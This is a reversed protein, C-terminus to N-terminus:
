RGYVFRKKGTTKNASGSERGYVFRKSTTQEREGFYDSAQRGQSEILGWFTGRAGCKARHCFYNGETAHVAFTFLDRGGDGGDCFPCIRLTLWAGRRKFQWGIESLFEAPTIKFTTM